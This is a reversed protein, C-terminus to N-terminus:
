LMTMDREQLGITWLLQQLTGSLLGDNQLNVRSDQLLRGAAKVSLVRCPELQDSVLKPREQLVVQSGVKCCFLSM